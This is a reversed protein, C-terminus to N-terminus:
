LLSRPLGAPDDRDIGLARYREAAAADFRDLYPAGLEAPYMPYQWEDGLDGAVARATARRKLQLLPEGAVVSLRWPQLNGSSPSRTAAQLVRELIKKPVPEPTFARVARRSDVAEYIDV